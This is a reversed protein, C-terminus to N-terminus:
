RRRVVPSRTRKRKKVPGDFVDLVKNAGEALAECVKEKEGSIRKKMGLRTKKPKERGTDTLCMGERVVDVSKARKNLSVAAKDKITKKKKQGKEAVTKNRAPCRM